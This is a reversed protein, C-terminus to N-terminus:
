QVVLTGTMTDPHVDCRYFFSGTRPPEFTLSQTAVGAFIAGVSATGALPATAGRSTYFAINHLVGPDQNDLAVTFSAGANATLTRPAFQLNRAVVTVSVPGAAPGGSDEQASAESDILQSGGWLAAAFVVFSVLMMPMGFKINNPVQPM